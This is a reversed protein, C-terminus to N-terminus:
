AGTRVSVPPVQSIGITMRARSAALSAAHSRNTSAIGAARKEMTGAPRLHDFGCKAMLSIETEGLPVAHDGANKREPPHPSQQETVRQNGIREADIATRERSIGFALGRQDPM